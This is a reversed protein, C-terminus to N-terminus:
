DGAEYAATRKQIRQLREMDFKPTRDFSYIGNQEQFVDTLQTYCYGFMNRNELLTSCLAEFRSYFEEISKPRDGYGWSDEGPKVTPSWGIGGFESVFYPQDRFPLSMAQTGGQGIRNEYPRWKKSGGHTVKFRDPKQEYDHSDYVDAEPVRHSYGSTDLVPRTLDLAKTALFLARM